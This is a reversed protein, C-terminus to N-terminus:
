NRIAQEIERRVSDRDQTVRFGNLRLVDFGQKRVNVSSALSSLGNPIAVRADNENRWQSDGTCVAGEGGVARGRLPPSPLSSPTKIARFLFALIFRQTLRLFKATWGLAVGEM